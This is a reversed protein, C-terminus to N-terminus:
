NDASRITRAKKMFQLQVQIPRLSEKLAKLTSSRVQRSGVGNTRADEYQAKLVQVNETLPTAKLGEELVEARAEMAEISALAATFFAKADEPPVSPADEPVGAYFRITDVQLEMVQQDLVEDYDGVLQLPGPCGALLVVLWGLLVAGVVGPSRGTAGRAIVCEM